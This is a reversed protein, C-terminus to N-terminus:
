LVAYLVQEGLRLGHPESDEATQKEQSILM